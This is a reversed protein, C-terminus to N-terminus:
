GYRELMFRAQSETFGAQRADWLYAARVAIRRRHLAAADQPDSSHQEPVVPREALRGADRDAEKQQAMFPSCYPCEDLSVVGAHTCIM